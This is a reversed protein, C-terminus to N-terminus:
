NSFHRKDTGLLPLHISGNAPNYCWTIQHIRRRGQLHLNYTKRQQYKDVMSYSTLHQCATIMMSAAMIVYLILFTLKHKAMDNLYLYPNFSNITSYEWM